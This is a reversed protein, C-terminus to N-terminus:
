FMRGEQIDIKEKVVNGSDDFLCACSRCLVLRKKGYNVIYLLARETNGCKPCRIEEMVM